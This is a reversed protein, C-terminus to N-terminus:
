ITHRKRIEEIKWNCKWVMRFFVVSVFALVLACVGLSAVGTRIAGFLEVVALLTEVLAFPLFFNRISTYYRILSEPDTYLAFPGEEARKRVFVWRVWRCIVEVGSDEMFAKYNDFDGADELIDVQYIYAGPECPEFTYVGLAFHSLAWGQNVMEQLWATEKDADYYLRFKKM